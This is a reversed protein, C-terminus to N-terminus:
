LKCGLTLRNNRVCKWHNELPKGGDKNNRVFKWHNKFPKGGNKLTQPPNRRMKYAFPPFVKKVRLKQTDNFTYLTVTQANRAKKAELDWIKKPRVKPARSIYYICTCLTFYRKQSRAIHSAYYYSADFYPFSVTLSALPSFNVMKVDFNTGSFYTGVAASGGGCWKQTTLHPLFEKWIDSAISLRPGPTRIAFATLYM